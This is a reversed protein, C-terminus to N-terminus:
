RAGYAADLAALYREGWGTADGARVAEVLRDSISGFRGEVADRLVAVFGEHDLPDLPVLGENEFGAFASAVGADQGTLVVGREGAPRASQVAVAQLPVLNMGDSLSSTCVVDAAALLGLVQSFPLAQATNVFLAGPPAAERAEAALSEIKAQYRDYAPVGQRTPSAIGVYSFSHGERYLHAIARLREPVGKTYDARELGVVLPRQWDGADRVIGPLEGAAGEQITADVDIGVPFADVTVRRGKVRLAEGDREALGLEVSANRFRGVDAPTQLGVLDAGLIGNLWATFRKLGANDLFERAIAITPFPTHLFFGIRGQYGRERVRAPVLGLQYDHVWCSEGRGADVVAEAFTANVEQFADWDGRAPLVPEPFYDTVRPLPARVLHMIPWLFGNATAAYHGEWTPDDFYLRRHALTGGGPLELMERGDVDTWERDYIGRGAGIWTTSGDRAITPSVAVLLGGTGAPPPPGGGPPTNHDLYARNALILDATPPM